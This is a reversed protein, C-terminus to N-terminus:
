PATTVTIASAATASQTGQSNTQVARAVYTGAATYRHSVTTATSIAGLSQSGGDGFEVTVDSPIGGTVSPTVTFTFTTATTGTTASPTITPGAPATISVTTSTTNTVGSDTANASITFTGPEEYVHTVTRAGTLNGLDTSRGDGWEIVVRPATGETPTVTLSVPVGAAASAPATLTVTAAPLLEIEVSAADEAGAHATVTAARTTTLQVTADGNADTTASSSSLTGASTTFTVPIGSLGQGEEGTVRASVAVTGGSPPLSSPNARLSLGAIANTGVAIDIGDEATASGSTARITALGSAGDAFFTTTALGNRTQAEAPEVRGLTTTFRVTTGNQVPTGASEVVFASVTTTGSPPLFTAAATLTLESDTPALLQVRDCAATVLALVIVLLIQRKM